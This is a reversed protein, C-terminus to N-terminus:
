LIFNRLIQFALTKLVACQTQLRIFKLRQYEVILDNIDHLLLLVTRRFENFIEHNGGVPNDGSSELVNRGQATDHACGLAPIPDHLQGGCFASLEGRLGIGFRQVIEQQPALRGIGIVEGVDREGHNFKDAGALIHEFARAFNRRSVETERHLIVSVGGCRIAAKGIDDRLTLDFSQKGTLRIGIGIRLQRRNGGVARLFFVSGAFDFTLHRFAESGEGHLMANAFDEVGDYSAHGLVSGEDADLLRMQLPQEHLALLPQVHAVPQAGIEYSGVRLLSVDVEGSGSCEYNQVV